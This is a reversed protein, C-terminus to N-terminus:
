SFLNLYDIVSYNFMEFDIRFIDYLKKTRELDILKFYSLSTSESTDKRNAWPFALNTGRIDALDSVLVKTFFSFSQMRRVKYLQQMM